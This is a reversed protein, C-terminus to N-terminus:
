DIGCQTVQLDAGRGSCDRRGRRRTWGSGDFGDYAHAASDESYSLTNLNPVRM